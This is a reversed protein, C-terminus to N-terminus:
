SCVKTFRMAAGKAVKGAFTAYASKKDCYFWGIAILRNKYRLLAIKIM